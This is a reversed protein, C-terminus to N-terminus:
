DEYFDGSKSLGHRLRAQVQKLRFKLSADIFEGEIRVQLGGLLTDDVREQIEVQKGYRKSLTTELESRQDDPLKTASTVEAVLIGKAKRYLILFEHFIARLHDQRGRRVITALFNLTHEGVKKGLVKRLLEIKQDRGINPTCLFDFVRQDGFLAPVVADLEGKIKDLSDQESAVQILAQAYVGEVTTVEGAM